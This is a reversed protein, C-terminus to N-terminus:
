YTQISSISAYKCPNYESTLITCKKKKSKVYVVPDLLTVWLIQMNDLLNGYINTSDLKAAKKEKTISM